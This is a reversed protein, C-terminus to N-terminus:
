YLSQCSWSDSANVNGMGDWEAELPFKCLPRQRLVGMDVSDGEFKTAVIEDPATGNEVWQMLALLVDHKADRFGPVGWTAGTADLTLVQSAGGFYWPADNPSGTCHQMGPVLFFRYFDDLDIGKPILTQSVQSHFYISQGTAILGDAQGHYHLLKGGRSEFPTLDFDAATANGPNIADGLEVISYNFTRWDWDPDNLLINQIWSIDAARPTHTTDTQGILPTWQAESGLSFPPFIMTQNITLWPSYYKNLTTVQDPNLCASTNSSPTCLLAEPNFLCSQPSSIIGDVVGDQADCQKVVEAEIVTFLTSPIHRSSNVPLNQFGTNFSWPQLHSSWWAPAGALVGDFDEPFLQLGRLGMRGGTSCGSYYSYNIGSAYYAETLQKALAVSGHLARYGWDKKTEENNLAWSADSTNSVHGTDTSLSAFGYLSNTGMDPWNIGGGFGGNGSAIIRSNWETPLYLGFNFSSINSSIINVKVACLEPLGSNNTPFELDEIGGGFSGNAPIPIAFSLTANKPLIAAFTATTCNLAQTSIANLCLLVFATSSRM